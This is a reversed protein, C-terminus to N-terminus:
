WRIPLTGGLRCVWCRPRRRATLLAREVVLLQHALLAERGVRRQEVVAVDRRRDDVRRTHDIPSRDVVGFWGSTGRCRRRCSRNSAAALAVSRGPSRVAARGRCRRRACRTHPTPARSTARTGCRSRRRTRTRPAPAPAPRSPTRRTRRRDPRSRPSGAPSSADTPEAGSAAPDRQARIRDLGVRVDRRRLPVQRPEPLQELVRRVALAVQRSGAPGSSASSTPRSGSSVSTNTLCRPLPGLPRRPCRAHRQREVREVDDAPVPAEVRVDEVDDSKSGIM